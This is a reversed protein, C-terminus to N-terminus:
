GFRQFEVVADALGVIRKAREARPKIPIPVSGLSFEVAGDGQRGAVTARVFIAGLKECEHPPAGFSESFDCSDVLQVVAETRSLRFCSRVILQSIVRAQNICTLSRQKQVGVLPRLVLRPM